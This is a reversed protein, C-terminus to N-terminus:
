TMASTLCPKDRLCSTQTQTAQSVTPMPLLTIEKIGTKDETLQTNRTIIKPISQEQSRTLLFKGRSPAPPICTMSTSPQM